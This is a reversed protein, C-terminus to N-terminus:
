DSTRPDTCNTTDEVTKEWLVSVDPEPNGVLAQRRIDMPISEFLSEFADPDLNPASGQAYNGSKYYKVIRFHPVESVVEGTEDNTLWKMRFARESGDTLATRAINKTTQNQINSYEDVEYLADLFRPYSVSPDGFAAKRVSLPVQNLLEEFETTSMWGLRSKTANNSDEWTITIEYSSNTDSSDPSPRMWMRKHPAENNEAVIVELQDYLLAQGFEKWLYPDKGMEPRPTNASNQAKVADNLAAYIAGWTVTGLRPSEPNRPIGLWHRYKSMQGARLQDSYTKVEIGILRSRNDPGVLELYGDITSDATQDPDTETAVEEGYRSIGLLYGEGGAELKEQVSGTHLTVQSDVSSLKYDTWQEDPFGRSLLWQLLQSDTDQVIKLLNKTINNELQKNTDDGAHQYLFINDWKENM